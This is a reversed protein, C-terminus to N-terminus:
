KRQNLLVVRDPYHLFLYDGSIRFYKWGSSVPLDLTDTTLFRSDYRLLQEGKKFYLVDRHVQWSELEPFPLTKLYNAFNDFVLIGAAANNLYVKTEQDQIERIEFSKGDGVQLINGSHQSILMNKSFKKLEMDSLDFIWLGNDFSRALASPMLLYTNLEIEGRISLQNDTFVVKGMDRYYLYIEFPNTADMSHLKGYVKHNVQKQIRGTADYKEISQDEKILYLTGLNDTTMFRFSGQIVGTSDYKEQAQVWASIFLFGIFIFKNM